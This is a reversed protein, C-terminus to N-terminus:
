LDNLKKSLMVSRYNTVDWKAFGVFRYGRKKYYNILEEAGEATDITIEKAKDHVALKEAIEILKEGIGQKQFEPDVAFQGYTSVFNQNYWDNGYTNQQSYYTITGIIKNENIAVYCEGDKIRKKTTEVDQHTALFRFGQDALKKYALHLLKTLNILDDDKELKRIQINAM